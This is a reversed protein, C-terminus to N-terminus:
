IFNQQQYIATFSNALNFSALAQSLVDQWTGDARLFQNQQGVAPAPVLGETGTLFPTAPLFPQMGPAPRAPLSLLEWVPGSEVLTTNYRVAFRGNAVIDGPDLTQTGGSKLIPIVGAGANLNVPGPNTTDAKISLIMGDDYATIAPTYTATYTASGDFVGAADFYADQTLLAATIAGAVIDANGVSGTINIVISKVIANIKATNLLENRSLLRGVTLQVTLAM